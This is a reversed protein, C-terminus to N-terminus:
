RRYVWFTAEVFHYHFSAYLIKVRPVRRRLSFDKRVDDEDWHSAHANKKTADFRVAMFMIRESRIRVANRTRFVSFQAM